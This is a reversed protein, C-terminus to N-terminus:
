AGAREYRQELTFLKTRFRVSSESVHVGTSRRGQKGDIEAPARVEGVARRVFHHGHEAGRQTSSARRDHLFEKM